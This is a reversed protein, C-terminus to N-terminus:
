GVTASMSGEGDDVIWCQDLIKMVIEHKNSMWTSIRM